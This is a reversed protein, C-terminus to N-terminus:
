ANTAEKSLPRLPEMRIFGPDHAFEPAHIDCSYFVDAPEKLFVATTIPENCFPEGPDSCGAEAYFECRLSDEQTVYEQPDSKVREHWFEFTYVGPEVLESGACLRKATREIEDPGPREDCYCDPNICFERGCLNNNAQHWFEEDFSRIM